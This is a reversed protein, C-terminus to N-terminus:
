IAASGLIKEKQKEIFAIKMIEDNASWSKHGIM